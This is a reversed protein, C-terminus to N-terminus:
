HHAVFGRPRSPEPGLAEIAELLEGAIATIARTAQALRGMLEDDGVAQAAVLLLQSAYIIQDVVSLTPPWVGARLGHPGGGESVNGPLARRAEALLDVVAGDLIERRVLERETRRADLLDSAATLLAHAHRAADAAHNRNLM